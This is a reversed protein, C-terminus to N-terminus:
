ILAPSEDISVSGLFQGLMLWVILDGLLIFMFFQYINKYKINKHAFDSM